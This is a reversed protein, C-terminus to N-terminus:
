HSSKILFKNPIVVKPDRVIDDPKVNPLRGNGVDLYCQNFEVIKKNEEETKVSTLRMNQQLM